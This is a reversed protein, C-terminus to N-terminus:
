WNTNIYSAATVHRGRMVGDRDRIVLWIDGMLSGAGLSTLVLPTTVMRPQPLRASVPPPLGSRLYTSTCSVSTEPRTLSRMAELHRPYGLGGAGLIVPGQGGPHLTDRARASTLHGPITAM